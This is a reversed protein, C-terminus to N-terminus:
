IPIVRGSLSVPTADLDVDDGRPKLVLARGHRGDLRVRLPEDLEV